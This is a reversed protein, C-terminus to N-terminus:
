IRALTQAPASESLRGARGYTPEADDPRALSRLAGVLSRLLELNERSRRVLDDVDAGGAGDELLARVIARKPEMLGELTAVDAAVAAQRERDLLDSLERLAAERAGTPM